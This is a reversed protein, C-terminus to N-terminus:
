LALETSLPSVPLKRDLVLILMLISSHGNRNVIGIPIRSLISLCSLPFFPVVDITLLINYFIFLIQKSFIRIIRCFNRSDSFM